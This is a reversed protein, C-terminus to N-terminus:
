EYKKYSTMLVKGKKVRIELKKRIISENSIYSEGPKLLGNKIPFKANQIDIIANKESLNLLSFIWKRIQTKVYTGQLLFITNNNHILILRKRQNIMGIIALYMDDRAGDCYVFIYDNILYKKRILEIAFEVDTQIQNRKIFTAFHLDKIKQYSYHDFDGCAFLIKKSELFSLAKCGSDVIVFYNNSKRQWKKCLQQLRLKNTFNAIVFIKKTM